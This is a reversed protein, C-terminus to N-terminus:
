ASYYAGMDAVSLARLVTSTLGVQYATFSVQRSIAGMELIDLLWSIIGLIILLTCINLWTVLISNLFMDNMPFNNSM